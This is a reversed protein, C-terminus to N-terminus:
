SHYNPKPSPKGQKESDSELFTPSEIRDNSVPMKMKKHMKYVTNKHSKLSQKQKGIHALLPRQDRTKQSSISSLRTLRM